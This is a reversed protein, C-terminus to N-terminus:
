GGDPRSRLNFRVALLGLISRPTLRRILEDVRDVLEGATAMGGFRSALIAGAKQRQMVPMCANVKLWKDGISHVLHEQRYRIQM